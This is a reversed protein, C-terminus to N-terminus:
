KGLRKLLAIKWGTFPPFTLPLDWGWRKILVSKYHTFADFDARGHYAGMGSEGVGGFPLGPAALQMVTANIAMGGSSTEAAIRRWLKRNRSFLYLALPKPRNALQGLVEEISEFEIVPLIPGFIEQQMVPMEFDVMDLITPAIYREPADTEGGCILRGDALLALLRKFHHENVIRGYDPSEQPVDGYFERLVGRLERMLKDKINRHVWLYDPAVCTQGANLFKGWAIRRAASALDADEAVICPSKGGLELVLPTLNEAAKSMIARAVRANGTYFILDYKEALLEDWPLDTAVVGPFDLAAIIRRLLRASNAVNDPLRVVVSNGAAIAAILPELTLLLPYNWTGGVLVVGYPEPYLLATAPFNFIGPNRRAPRTWSGLKRLTRCMVQNLLALECIVAESESKRLDNLLAALMTEHESKLISRLKKLLERRQEVKRLGGGKQFSRLESIQQQFDANM